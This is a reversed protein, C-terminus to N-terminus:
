GKIADHSMSGQHDQLILEQVSERVRVNFLIWHFQLDPSNCCYLKSKLNRKCRYSM